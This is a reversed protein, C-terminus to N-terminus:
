HVYLSINASSSRLMFLIGSMIDCERMRRKPTDVMGLQVAMSKAHEGLPESTPMPFVDEIIDEFAVAASQSTQKSSTKSTQSSKLISNTATSEDSEDEEIVDLCLDMGNSLRRSQMPEVGASFGSTFSKPPENNTQNNPPQSSMNGTDDKRPLPIAQEANQPPKPLPKGLINQEARVASNPPQNHTVSPSSSPQREEVKSGATLIGDSARRRSKDLSKELTTTGGIDGVSRHRLPPSIMSSTNIELEFPIQDDKDSVRKKYIRGIIENADEDSMGGDSGDESNELMNTMLVIADESAMSWGGESGVSRNSNVRSIERRPVSTNSSDGKKTPVSLPMHQIRIEAYDEDLESKGSVYNNNTTTAGMTDAAPRPSEQAQQKTQYVTKGNMEEGGTSQGSSAFSGGDGRGFGIILSSNLTESIEKIDADGSSAGVTTSDDISESEDHGRRPGFGCILSDSKDSDDDYSQKSSM